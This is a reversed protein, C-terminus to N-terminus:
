EKGEKQKAEAAALEEDTRVNDRPKDADPRELQESAEEDKVKEFFRSNIQSIQSVEEGEPREVPEVTVNCQTAGGTTSVVRCRLTVVDGEAIPTGNKDHM